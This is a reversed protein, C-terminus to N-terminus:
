CGRSGRRKREEHQHKKTTKEQAIEIKTEKKKKKQHTKRKLNHGHKVALLDVVGLVTSDKMNGQSRVLVVGGDHHVAHVDDLLYQTGSHVSYHTKNVDNFHGKWWDSTNQQQFNPPGCTTSVFEYILINESKWRPM